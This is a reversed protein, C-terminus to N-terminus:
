LCRSYIKSLLAIHNAWDYVIASNRAQARIMNIKDNNMNLIETIRKQWTARDDVPAFFGNMGDTIRGHIGPIDSALLVAGCALAEVAVLSFSESFSPIAVISAARYYNALMKRDHTIGAFIVRGALGRENLYNRLSPEFYGGGVIVLKINAPLNPLIDCLLKVNKVPLINGVFLITKAGALAELHADPWDGSGPCFINTDVGNPLISIKEKGIYRGFKSQKFYDLDVALIHDALNFLKKAYLRDFINQLWKKVGGSQPDMHYTVVMSFGLLKKARILAGLAGYFPYHLHVIDFGRLSKVLDTLYGADGFKVLPSLYKIIFNGTSFKAEQDGDPLTMVTVDHDASLRVAEELCVQGMGGSHPPFTSVIHAIKM